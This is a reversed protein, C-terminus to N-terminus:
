VHQSCLSVACHCCASQVHRSRELWKGNGMCRPRQRDRDSGLRQCHPPLSGRSAGITYAACRPVQHIPSFPSLCTNTCFFLCLIIVPCCSTGSCDGGQVCLRVQDYAAQLLTQNNTMLGYLAVFPPAMYVGDSWYALTRARMSVAGNAIRPADQLLYSLQRQAAGAFTGAANTTLVGNAIEGMAYAALLVAEGCSAPDLASGAGLEEDGTVRSCLRGLSDQTQVAASAMGLVSPLLANANKGDNQAYPPAEKGAFVSWEGAHTELLMSGAVGQEWNARPSALVSMIATDVFTTNPSKDARRTYRATEAGAAGLASSLGVIALIAYLFAASFRSPAVEHRRRSKVAM